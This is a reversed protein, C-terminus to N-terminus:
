GARITTTKPITAGNENESKAAQDCERRAESQREDKTKAVARHFGFRGPNRVSEDSIDGEHRSAGEDEGDIGGDAVAGAGKDLLRNRREM